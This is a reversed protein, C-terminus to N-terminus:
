GGLCFNLLPQAPFKSVGGVPERGHWLHARAGSDSGVSWTRGAYLSWALAPLLTHLWASGRTEHYRVWCERKPSSRHWWMDRLEPGRRGVHSPEPAVARGVAGSGAERSPLAETSGCTGHSRVGGGQKSAESSGMHRVAIRPSSYLFIQSCRYLPLAQVNGLYVQM